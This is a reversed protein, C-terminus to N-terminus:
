ANAQAKLEPREDRSRVRESVEKALRVFDEAGRSKPDYHLITKHKASAKQINTDVRIPSFVPIGKRRFVRDIHALITDTISLRKDVFTPVIGFIEYDLGMEQYIMRALELSQMAGVVSLYDMSIPILISRSYVITNQLVLSLSPATDLLVYDYDNLGELRKALVAERNIASVLQQEIAGTRKDSPIVHFRNSIKYTVEKPKVGTIMLDWLGATHKLGNSVAVHGQSDTDILLIRLGQAALAAGLNIAITTKGVGGKLNSIAIRNM